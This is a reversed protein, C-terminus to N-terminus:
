PSFNFNPLIINNFDNDFQPTETWLELTMNRLPLIIMTGSRSVTPLQGTVKSGVVGPINPAKYAAVTSTGQQVDSQVETLVSSYSDQVIQVRLAFAITSSQTDPVTNPYFYGDVYPSINTDDIVYASWTNPYKITVSGYAAPSVYTRLPYKSAQAFAANKATAEQQKAIIVASAVKSNVNDEYDKMKGYTWVSFAIAGILLVFSLVLPLILINFGHEKRRIM